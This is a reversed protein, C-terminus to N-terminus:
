DFQVLGDRYRALTEETHNPMALAARVADRANM